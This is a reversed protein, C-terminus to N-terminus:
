RGSKKRRQSRMNSLRVRVTNSSTGLIDAVDKPQFGASSLLEIQEVQKKEAVLGLATLRILLDLKAEIVELSKESM